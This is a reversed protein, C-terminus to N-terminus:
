PDLTIALEPCSAEAARAGDLHAPTLEGVLVVAIGDDALDFLEPATGACVAHGQCRDTDVRVQVTAGPHYGFM